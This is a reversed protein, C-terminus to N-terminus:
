KRMSINLLVGSAGMFVMLSSGGYSIFPMPLGTPPISGTVVAINILVQIAVIMVIGSALYCGFLSTANVATKIGRLIFVAFVAILFVCGFLGLEEGVISFIFDSESFPLFDFKQRSNFLGVGFFGGGGLAYLSQILQYGEGKPSQWPDIFAYLRNLRYPEIFILIPILMIAPLLMTAFHRKKCGGIYLMGLMLLGMCVTISMNPELIILLCFASGVALVPLLRIFSGMKDKYRSMYYASFLIFSFKALESPQITFGMFGVWRRSGYNEIGLGPIFVLILLVLTLGLFIYRFKQLKQYPYFWLFLLLALGVVFGPLQKKVYLFKDGYDKYASYNSASYVMVLGFLALFITAALLIYDPKNKETSINKIKIESGKFAM